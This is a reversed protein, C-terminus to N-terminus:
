NKINSTWLVVYSYNFDSDQAEGYSDTFSDQKQLVSGIEERLWQAQQKRFHIADNLNSLSDSSPVIWGPPRTKLKTLM